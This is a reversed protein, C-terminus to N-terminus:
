EEPWFVFKEPNALRSNWDETQYICFPIKEGKLLDTLDKIIRASAREWGSVCMSPHLVISTEYNKLKSALKEREEENALWFPFDNPVCNDVNVTVPGVCRFRHSIFGAEPDAYKKYLNYGGSKLLEVAKAPNTKMLISWNDYVGCKGTLMSEPTEELMEIYEEVKM